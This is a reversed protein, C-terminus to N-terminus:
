TNKVGFKEKLEALVESRVFNCNETIEPNVGKVRPEPQLSEM